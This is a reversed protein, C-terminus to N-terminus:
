LGETRMLEDKTVALVDATGRTSASTQPLARVSVLFVTVGGVDIRSPWQRVEGDTPLHLVRSSLNFIVLYATTKGYDRAYSTAQQVGKAIYSRGYSGGDFLKVECVLPDDSEVGAVVDSQGSASKPQSFPYDIGQDFLFHRLDKDYIAEGHARDAEYEAYLTGQEFWEVRRVYRELLYLIDSAEGIREQLYEILPEVVAEAAARSGADANNQSHLITMGFMAAGHDAHSWEQLLHWAVEARGTEAPPWSVAQYTAHESIWTAPDIDQESREVNEVLYRLATSERIFAILYGAETMFLATGAKYLRRYREQLRVQLDRQYNMTVGTQDHRAALANCGGSRGAVGVRQWGTGGDPDPCPLLPVM